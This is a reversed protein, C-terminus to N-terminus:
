IKFEIQIKIQRRLEDPSITYVLMKRYEKTWNEDPKHYANRTMVYQFMYEELDLEGVRYQDKLMQVKKTMSVKEKIFSHKKAYEIIEKDIMHSIDPDGEKCLYTLMEIPKQVKSINLTGNNYKEPECGLIKAKDKILQRFTRIMLKKDSRIMFHTHQSKEGVHEQKIIYERVLGSQKFVDALDSQSMELRIVGQLSYLYRIAWASVIVPPNEM